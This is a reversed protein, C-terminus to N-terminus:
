RPDEMVSFLMSRGEKDTRCEFEVGEIYMKGEKFFFGNRMQDHANLQSCEMGQYKSITMMTNQLNAFSQNSYTLTVGLDLVRYALVLVLAGLVTIVINKM